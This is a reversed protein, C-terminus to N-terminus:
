LLQLVSALMSDPDYKNDVFEFYELHAEGELSDSVAKVIVYPVSAQECAKAVAFSEMDLVDGDSLAKKQAESCFSSVTYFTVPIYKNSLKKSLESNNEIVDRKFGPILKFLDYDGNIFKRGVVIDGQKLKRNIAGCTGLLIVFDPRYKNIYKMAGTSANVQGVGITKHVCENPVEKRLHEGYQENLVVSLILLM